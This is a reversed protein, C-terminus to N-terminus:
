MLNVILQLKSVMVFRLGVIAMTSKLTLSPKREAWIATRHKLTSGTPAFGREVIRGLALDFVLPMEILSAKEVLQSRFM